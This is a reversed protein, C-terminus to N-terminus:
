EVPYENVWLHQDKLNNAPVLLKHNRSVRGYGNTKKMLRVKEKQPNREM